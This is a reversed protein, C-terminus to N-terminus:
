DVSDDGMAAVNCAFELYMGEGSQGDIGQCVIQHCHPIQILLARGLGERSPSEKTVNKPKRKSMHSFCPHAVTDTRNESKVKGEESFFLAVADAADGASTLQFGCLPTLGNKM